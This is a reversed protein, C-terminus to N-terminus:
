EGGGGTWNGLWAGTCGEERFEWRHSPPLFYRFAGLFLFLTSTFGSTHVYCLSVRVLRISLMATEMNEFVTLRALKDIM